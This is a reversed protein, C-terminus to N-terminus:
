ECATASLKRRERWAFFREGLVSGLPGSVLPAFLCLIDFTHGRNWDLGPVYVMLFAAYAILVAMGPRCSWRSRVVLMGALFFTGAYGLELCGKFLSPQSTHLVGQHMHRSDQLFSLVLSLGLFLFWLAFATILFMVGTILLGIWVKRGPYEIRPLSSMPM